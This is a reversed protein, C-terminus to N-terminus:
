SAPSQQARRRAFRAAEAARIRHSMAHAVFESYLDMSIRYRHWADTDKIPGRYKAYRQLQKRVDRDSERYFGSVVTVPQSSKLTEDPGVDGTASRVLMRTDLADSAEARQSTYLEVTLGLQPPDYPDYATITGVLLGDTGLAKMLALAQKPSAIAEFQLAEMAAITRNLPLVDVNPVNELQRVLHDALVFGDAELSGSENRLAGVAWVRRAQYPSEIRDSLLGFSELVSCGGLCIAAAALMAQESTM